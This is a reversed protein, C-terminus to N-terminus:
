EFRLVAAPNVGAARYAPVACALMAAVLTITSVAAYTIPDYASVGFLRGALMRASLAAALLGILVGSVALRSAAAIVLTVLGRRDAGLAARIALERRRELVSRSVTGGLGLLALLVTLVAFSSAVWAHLRRDAISSRVAEDLSRIETVPQDPDVRAIAARVAPVLAKPDSTSRAVLYMSGLPLRDWPVYVAGALPEALGTYRVDEVVGIVRAERTGNGPVGSPMEQGVPDRDRFLHRVVSRSIVVPTPRADFDPPQFSRGQILHAGLAAFFNGRVGVLGMMETEDRGESVLRIAMQVQSSQPPLSSGMGVASVGRLRQVEDLVREVVDRREGPRLLSREGIMLKMTLSHEARAGLEVALLRSVTRALLVGTTLTVISLSLQVVVLAASTRGYLATAQGGTQKLLPAIGRQISYLAPAVSFILAAGLALGLSTALVPGDVQVAELRPLVSAASTRLVRVAIAAAGVGALAGAAALLLAEIWVTRLVRTRGAGLALRIATERERTRARALLPGAVNVAAVLLVVMSALSLAWLVGGVDGSLAAVLPIVTVPAVAKNPDGSMERAVRTVDSRLQELTVGPRMRVLLTYRRDDNRLLPIAPAADAPIWVDVSESPFAAGLPMVGTVTFAGDAVHVPRGLASVPDLGAAHILRASLVVGGAASLPNFPWEASTRPALVRFFEPSVFAARVIRPEGLGRLSHDATAFAAVGDATRLTDRWLQLDQLPTDRQVVALRSPETYPLPRLLIGYTVALVASNLGTGLALTVVIAATSWPTQIFSRLATRADDNLEIRSM